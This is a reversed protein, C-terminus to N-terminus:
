VLGLHAPRSGLYSRWQPSDASRLTTSDEGTPAFGLSTVESVMNMQSSLVFLGTNLIHPALVSATNWIEIAGMGVDSKTRHSAQKNYTAFPVSAEIAAPTNGLETLIFGVSNTVELVTYPQLSLVVSTSWVMDASDVGDFVSDTSMTPPNLLDLPGVAQAPARAAMGTAMVMIALVALFKFTRM